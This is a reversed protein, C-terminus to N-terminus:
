KWPRGAAVLGMALLALVVTGPEPVAGGGVGGAGGGAGFNTKWSNYDDQSVVGTGNNPDRNQLTSGPQGVNNRWVTYDAADVIGNGNYDGTQGPLMIRVYEVELDVLGAGENTLMGLYYLNFNSLLGDGATAFEQAQEITAATFPIKITTMAGESFQNLAVNFHYEDGGFDGVNATGNGDRDKAVVQVSSAQGGLPATLKARIELLATTGDFVTTVGSQWAGFGGTADSDDTNIRFANNPLFGNQDYRQLQDTNTPDYLNGDINISNGANRIFPSGFRLGFGTKGDLRAVEAPDQNIKRIRLAKIEWDDILAQQTGGFVAQLHIQVAGNPVPLPGGEFDTFDPSSDRQATPLHCNNPCDETLLSGDFMYSPGNFNAALQTMAGMNSLSTAFGNADLDGNTATNNYTNMLDFFGWQWQEGAHLGGATFGDNTDLTVNLQTATNAPGPKYVLEAVYQNPDFNAGFTALDLLPFMQKNVPQIIGVFPDQPSNLNGITFNVGVGGGGGGSETIRFADYRGLGPTVPTSVAFTSGYSFRGFGGWSPQGGGSNNVNMGDLFMIVDGQAHVARAGCALAVGVLVLSILRAAQRMISCIM